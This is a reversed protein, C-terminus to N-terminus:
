TWSGEVEDIIQWSAAVIESCGTGDLYILYHHLDWIEGSRERREHTEALIEQVWESDNVEVLTDYAGEIHWSTCAIESRTRKAKVNRFSIGSKMEIDDRVYSYRIVSGCLVADVVFETSPVPVEYLPTRNSMDIDAELDCPPLEKLVL